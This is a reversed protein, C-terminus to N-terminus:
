RETNSVPQASLAGTLFRDLDDNLKERAGREIYIMHGSEYFTFQINDRIAPDLNMGRVVSQAAFYPTALDYYGCCVWIKLYPNRSMAEKL